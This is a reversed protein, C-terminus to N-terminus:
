GYFTFSHTTIYIPEIQLEPPDPLDAFQSEDSINILSEFELQFYSPIFLSGHNLLSKGLSEIQHEDEISLIETEDNCCPMKREESGSCGDALTSYYEVNMTRGMCYHTSKTVGISLLLYILAINLLVLKNM